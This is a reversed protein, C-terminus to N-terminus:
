EAEPIENAVDFGLTFRAVIPTYVDIVDEEGETEAETTHYVKIAYIFDGYGDINETDDHTLVIQGDENFKKELVVNNDQPIRKVYMRVDDNSYDYTEGGSTELSLALVASDGKTLNINMKEDVTLM